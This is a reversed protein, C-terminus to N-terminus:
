VAGKHDGPRLLEAYAAPCRQACADWTFQEVLLKRGRRGTRTALAPDGVGPVRRTV